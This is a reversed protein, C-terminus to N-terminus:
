KNSTLAQRIDTITKKLTNFNEESIEIKKNGGIIMAGNETTQNGANEVVVVSLQNYATGLPKLQEITEEIGPKSKFQELYAMLSEFVNKEDAIQQINIDTNSFSDISNIIIYMCEIWGGASIQAITSNKGQVELAKKIDLYTENAIVKLSDKNQIQEDIRANLKTSFVSELGLKSSLERLVALYKVADQNQGNVACYAMDACYVGFNTEKSKSDEYTNARDTPNLLASSFKLKESSFAFIDEPSPLLYYTTLEDNSEAFGDSETEQKNGSNGQNNNGGNCAQLGLLATASVMASLGLTKYNLKM